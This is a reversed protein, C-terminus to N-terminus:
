ESLSFNIKIMVVGKSVSLKDLYMCVADISLSMYKSTLAVNVLRNSLTGELEGYIRFIGSGRGM